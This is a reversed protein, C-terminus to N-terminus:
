GGGLFKAAWRMAQSFYKHNKSISLIQNVTSTGDYLIKYTEIVRAQNRTLGSFLEDLRKFNKGARNHQYLRASLKQKTIGTYVEEGNQSIGKYVSNDSDGNKLWAEFEEDSVEKSKACMNHVLVNSESVYYTHYDAVEFNYTTEPESLQEVQIEEIIGCSGDSLM